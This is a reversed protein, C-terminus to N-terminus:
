KWNECPILARYHPEAMIAASEEEGRLEV